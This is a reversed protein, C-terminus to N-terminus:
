WWARTIVIALNKKGAFDRTGIMKGSADPFRLDPVANGVPIPQLTGQAVQQDRTTEPPIVKQNGAKHFFEYYGPLSVRERGDDAALM